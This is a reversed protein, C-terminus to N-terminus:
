QRRSRTRVRDLADVLPQAPLRRVWLTEEEYHAIGGVVGRSVDLQRVDVRNIAVTVEADAQGRGRLSLTVRRDGNREEFFVGPIDEPHSFDDQGDEGRVSPGHREVPFDAVDVDPNM